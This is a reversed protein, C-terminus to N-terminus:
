ESKRELIFNTCGNKVGVEVACKKTPMCCLWNDPHVRGKYCHWGSESKVLVGTM